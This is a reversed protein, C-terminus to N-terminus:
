TPTRRLMDDHLREFQERLIGASTFLGQQGATDFDRLEEDMLDLLEKAHRLLDDLYDGGQGSSARAQAERM